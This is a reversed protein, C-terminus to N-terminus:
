QADGLKVDGLRVIGQEGAPIEIIVESRPQTPMVIRWRGPRLGAIGFRGTRNTFIQLPARDPKAVEFVEGALLSVPKGDEDLLTGIATVSYESGATVLYGARYPPFVRVNGRGLDFGIPADPVDYSIVRETYSLLNPDVAPGFTGSRATYHGERPDVYVTADKIGRYPRVMVFADDIPRSLAIAGDAFAIATGVRLSTRQDIINSGSIDYGARHSIGLEARNANYTAAGDVGVDGDVYELSGGASWAGVGQGGSTQYSLRGREFRTDVEASATSRASLRYILLARVGYDRGFFPNHDYVGEVLLSLRQTLQNSYSVRASYEDEFGSRGIRYEGSASIQQGRGLSHSITAALDWNIRDNILLTDPTAFNGSRHEVSFIASTLHAPDGWQTRYDVNFAYGFGFNRVQSVAFDAGFTGIRTATVGEVGAVVGHRQAQFNAGITLTDSIGRRIFGTAAPEDFRYDRDGGNRPNRIGAFLGFETLGQALLARDFFTSFNLIERRGSDDEVVLSVNNTGTVFPFDQLNYTGPDLRISRIPQGNILVDVTGPRDLVFSSRGRPQVNRDPELISYLRSVGVGAIQPAGTFGRSIPLLDGATWRVLRDRDDYVLRTGERTFFRGGQFDYTAENELVVDHLRFASDSFITLGDFGRDQGQWEYDIFSRLNIYGSVDAPPDVEGVVKEGLEQLVISRPIRLTAPIKINLAINAPDYTIIYGLDAISEAPVDQRGVLRGQLQEFAAPSLIPKLLELLRASDITITDDAELVFSIEGLLFGQERIPATLAVDHGTPNLRVPAAPPAAAPAPTAPAPTAPSPRPPAAVQAWAIAPASACIAAGAGVVTRTALRLRSSRKM